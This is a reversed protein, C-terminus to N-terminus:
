AASRIADGRPRVLPWAWAWLGLLPVLSWAGPLGLVLGLNSALADTAAARELVRGLAFEWLPNGFQPAEPMAATALLMQAVSVIALVAFATPVRERAPVLGIALLGLAPVVHRPGIAAGGDWMYYGANLLLMYVGCAAAAFAADTGLRARPGDRVLLGWVALLLIPSLYFLGRYSGFTIALLVSPRPAGIGYRVQMGAAFEPLWVWDYGTSLPHGFAVGHYIALAIAWPLAGLGLALARRLDQRQWWWLALGAAIPAVTYETAVAFGLATGIGAALGPSARGRPSLVIGAFGLMVLAACLQHGYLATAYPLAPTGLAWALACATAIAVHGRALRLAVLWAALAGLVSVLGVSGLGAFYLGIRHSRNYVLRDGPQRESVSPSRGAALDRPDQPVVTVAPPAGGALRRLTAVVAYPVVAAFSTGPAKDCYWHGDRYSKDGTTEHDPDIQTSGREVLARTLAFRSNQNWAPAPVFYAYTGLLVLALKWAVQRQQSLPAILERLGVRTAPEPTPDAPQIM